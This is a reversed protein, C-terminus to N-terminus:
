HCDRRDFALRTSWKAAYKETRRFWGPGCLLPRVSPSNAGRQIIATIGWRRRRHKGYNKIALCLFPEATGERTTSSTLNQQSVLEEAKVVKSRWILFHSFIWDQRSQFRSSAAPLIRPCWSSWRPPAVSSEATHAPANCQTTNWVRSAPVTDLVWMRM